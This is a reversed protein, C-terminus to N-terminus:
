PDVILVKVGGSGTRRDVDMIEMRIALRFFDFAATGSYM